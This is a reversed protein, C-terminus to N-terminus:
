EKKRRRRIADVRAQANMGAGSPVAAEPVPAAKRADRVILLASGVLIVGGVIAVIVIASPGSSSTAKANRNAEEERQELESPQSGAGLSSSPLETAFSDVVWTGLPLALAALALMLIFFRRLM